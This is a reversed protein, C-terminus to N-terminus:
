LVLRNTQNRNADSTRWKMLFPKRQHLTILNDLHRFFDGIQVQEATTPVKVEANKINDSNLSEFTSGCSLTKWFGDMDMKVLLQYIFENGKIAAVGRGIVANYATKGMAGAPARVSMILDGADAKKTIQTTWIRPCVWGNQLDANGQVLIYDSPEDSYTSGDPSQGMTIQVVDGLKRQEWSSTTRKKNATLILRDARGTFSICERQHLTILNDLQRFVSVIRDQETRSPYAITVEQIDTNHIHVVSKGQAKKALEKQPEGNSIALALFLPNIFDFPRLINLDGGLLVGSKEVASARAIDEATEGSAPVIVENGQSYVAGNRPVAFTDVESIAFQYKTYLRGYLIIPTGADTLDGKSYGNGKSYDAIDIAKRQEWSFTSTAFLLSFVVQSPSCLNACKRQHLTILHDLQQFFGGITQQERMTPPMMLEMVAMQKGSVEVFTSGAGVLEGYRKLEETRSFIFYSDLEGRHPVISQFGQNTCGKRTLIATKGIGARSTFLVTGPPLMKASSNEYGLGTIKKQSSNAYIQDAIEAPAYWDIDGDWYSQNGTSPTGGGVIDAIDGLKRQEWSFDFSGLFSRPERTLVAYKKMKRSAKATIASM